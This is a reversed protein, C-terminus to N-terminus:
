SSIIGMILESRTRNTPIEVVELKYIKDLEEAETTATGTMGALKEYMRFYNQLTITAYTNSGRSM